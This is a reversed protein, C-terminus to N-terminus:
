RPTEKFYFPSQPDPEPDLNGGLAIYLKWLKTTELIRQRPTLSLWEMEEDIYLYLDLRKQLVIKHKKM